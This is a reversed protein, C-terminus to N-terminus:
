YIYPKIRRLYSHLNFNSLSSKSSLLSSLKSSSFLFKMVTRWSSAYIIRSWGLWIRCFHLFFDYFILSMNTLSRLFFVSMPYFLVCSSTPHNWRFGWRWYTSIDTSSPVRQTRWVRWSVHSSCFFKRCVSLCIAIHVALWVDGHKMWGFTHINATYLRCLTWTHMHWCKFFFFRTGFGYIFGCFITM